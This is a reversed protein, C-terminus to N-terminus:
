SKSSNRKYSTEGACNAAFTGSGAASPKSHAPARPSNARRRWVPQSCNRKMVSASREKVNSRVQDFGSELNAVLGQMKALFLKERDTGSVHDKLYSVAVGIALLQGCAAIILGSITQDFSLVKPLIYILDGLLFLFGAFTTAHRDILKDPNM